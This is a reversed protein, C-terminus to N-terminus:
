SLKIGFFRTMVPNNHVIFDLFLLLFMYLHIFSKKSLCNIYRFYDVSIM